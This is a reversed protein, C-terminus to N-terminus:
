QGGQQWDQKHGNPPLFSYDDDNDDGFDDDDDTADDDEDYKNAGGRQHRNNKVDKPLFIIREREELGVM